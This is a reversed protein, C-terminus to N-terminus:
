RLIKRGNKVVVRSANTARQGSLDFMPANEENEKITAVSSSEGTVHVTMTAESGGDRAKATLVASGAKHLFVVGCNVTAVAEDSSTWDVRFDTTSIPMLTAHVVITDQEALDVTRETDSLILSTSVEPKVQGDVLYLWPLPLTQSTYMNFRAWSGEPLNYRLTGYKGEADGITAGDYGLYINWTTSGEDWFLQKSGAGLKRGYQDTLTWGGEVKNLTFYEIFSEYVNNINDIGIADLYKWEVMGDIDGAAAGSRYLIVKDGDSITSKKELKRTTYGMTSETQIGEGAEYDISIAQLYVSGEQTGGKITITLDDGEAVPSITTMDQEIAVYTVLDKSVWSGVWDCFDKVRTKCLENEGTKVEIAFQGAKNNSCMWLTVHKVTCGTWGELTLTAQKNRPIQNYRNGITAGYENEFYYISGVPRQGTIKFDFDGKSKDFEVLRFTIEEAHVFGLALFSLLLTFVHKM